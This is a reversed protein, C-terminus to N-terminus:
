GTALGTASAVADIMAAANAAVDGGDFIASGSVIIDAGMGAVRAINARTVGGDVGLVIPRGSAEILRRARELRGETSALFSQGGWGPNIAVVLLYDLEDLLPEVADIPTSPNLGVGRILGRGADNANTAATLVQLVRHPQSAGELHFTVM